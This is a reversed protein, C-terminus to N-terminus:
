CCQKPLVNLHQMQSATYDSRLHGYVEEIMRTNKHGVWKAITHISIEPNMMCQSIFYHRFTYNNMKVLGTAKKASEFARRYGRIPKQGHNAPNLFVWEHDPKNPNRDKWVKHIVEWEIKWDLMLKKLDAHLDVYRKKGNKLPNGHKPKIWIRNNDFDIDSWEMFFSEAPRCGTYCRFKVWPLVYKGTSHSTLEKMFLLLEEESPIWVEEQKIESLNSVSKAPNNDVIQQDMGYKFFSRLFTLELNICRASINNKHRTEVYSQIDAIAIRQVACEGFTKSLVKGRREENSVTNDSKIVKRHAIYRPLFEDFTIVQRKVPVYVKSALKRHEKDEADQAEKKSAFGDERFRIKNREFQYYWVSKGAKRYDKRKNVPM